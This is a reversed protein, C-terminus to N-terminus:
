RGYSKSSLINTKTIKKWSPSFFGSCTIWVLNESLHDSVSIINFFNLGLVYYVSGKIFSKLVVLAIDEVSLWTKQHNRKSDLYQLSSYDSTCWSLAEGVVFACGVTHSMCWLVSQCHIRVGQGRVWSLGRPKNRHPQSLSQPWNFFTM